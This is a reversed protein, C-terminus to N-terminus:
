VDACSEEAELVAVEEMNLLDNLADSECNSSPSNRTSMQTLCIKDTRADVTIGDLNNCDDRTAKSNPKKNDLCTALLDRCAMRIETSMLGYILPSSCTAICYFVTVLVYLDASLANVKDINRVIAYPIFGFMIMLFVVGFMKTIQIEHKLVLNTDQMNRSVKYVFAFILMYCSVVITCPLIIQIMTVSIIRGKQDSTFVCRLLKPVYASTTMTFGPLACALPILRAALLVFIVYAKKSMQRYFNNHVVVIHRHVAILASHWLSSGTFTVTFEPNLKCLTMGVGWKEEVYSDIILVVILCLTLLDNVCLSLIFTNIINWTSRKSLIAITIWLNGLLGGAFFLSMVLIGTIRAPQSMQSTSNMTDSLNEMIFGM